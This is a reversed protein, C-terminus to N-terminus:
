ASQDTSDTALVVPAHVPVPVPLESIESDPSKQTMTVNLSEVMRRLSNVTSETRALVFYLAAATLLGLSGLFICLAGFTRIQATASRLEKQAIESLVRQPEDRRFKAADEQLQDWQKLHYNIVADFLQSESNSKKYAIVEAKSVVECFFRAADSVYLIGRQENKSDAVGRLEHQFTEALQLTFASTDLGSKANSDKSCAVIKKAEDLYKGKVQVLNSQPSDDEFKKGSAFSGHPVLQKLFDDAKVVNIQRQKEPNPIELSHSYQIVVFVVSVVAAITAVTLTTWVALHLAIGPSRETKEALDDL